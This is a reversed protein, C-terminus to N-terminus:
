KLVLALLNTLLIAAVFLVLWNGLNKVEKMFTTLVAIQEDHKILKKEIGDTGNGRLRKDTNEVDKKIENQEEELNQVRNSMQMCIPFEGANKTFKNMGAAVANEVQKLTDTDLTM